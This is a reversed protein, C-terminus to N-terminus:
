LFPPPSLCVRVLGRSHQVIPLLSPAPPPQPAACSTSLTAVGQWITSGSPHRRFGNVLRLRLLAPTFASPVLLRTLLVLVVLLLFFPHTPLCCRFAFVFLTQSPRMHVCMCVCVSLSLSPPLSPPMVSNSLYSM